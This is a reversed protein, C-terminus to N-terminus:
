CLTVSFSPNKHFMNGLDMSPFNQVGSSIGGNFYFNMQCVAGNSPGRNGGTGGGTNVFGALEPVPIGSPIEALTDAIRYMVHIGLDGFDQEATTGGALRDDDRTKIVNNLFCGVGMNGNSNYAAFNVTVCGWCGSYFDNDDLAESMMGNELVRVGPAKTSSANM